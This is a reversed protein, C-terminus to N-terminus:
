AETVKNTEFAPFRWMNKRQFSKYNNTIFVPINMNVKVTFFYKTGQGLVAHVQPVMTQNAESFSLIDCHGIRTGM